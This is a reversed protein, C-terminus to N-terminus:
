FSFLSSRSSKPTLAIIAADALNPSSSGSPKKDVIVKGNMGIKQVPQSFEMVLQYLLEMNSSLSIMESPSYKKNKTVAEYTKLFRARVRFWSQAKLNGYVDGNKPSERDNSIVPYGKDLPEASADWMEIQLNRPWTKEKRMTNIESKFGSGVGICDYAMENFGNEVCIPVAIRAADGAEGAWQKASVIVSGMIGINANKDAGGDAIDQGARQAGSRWEALYEARQEEPLRAALVKDADISATVWESKIIVGIVAGSYDRDVEQAFVHLLGEAEAKARRTDYWEQTKEPHDRWDFVFVRTKGHAIKCGPTWIEGAMRRRYFVNSTGNVSSIDIQVDTNDGLAAEILEPHELHAAEDLFYISTRSGRGLSDGAEGTISAGNEPNIIKMYTAHKDPIYGGPIMWSPLNEIIQRMKPFIAKSNGKDDVYEEKRSGWGIAVDKYFLWMWVSFACCSWTAGIDRCKETLGSEKTKWLEVLYEFFEIQKQFPIFPILKDKRILRPDYTICFDRVWDVPNDRYYAMLATQIKLNKRARILIKTRRIIESDLKNLEPM